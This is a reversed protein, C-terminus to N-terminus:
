RNQMNQRQAGPRRDDKLSHILLGEQGEPRAPPYLSDNDYPRIGFAELKNGDREGFVMVKEGDQLQIDPKMRTINTIIIEVEENQDSLLLFGNETLESINGILMGEPHNELIDHYLPRLVPVNNREIFSGMREHMPTQQILWSGSLAVLTVAIMSYILPRQYSFSYQLVLFYLLALFIASTGILLWPSSMVLFSIGRFGFSPAFMISSQRLAFFVFSLFYIALLTAMIVGFLLLTTHLLFRWRPKMDIEGAKIKEM